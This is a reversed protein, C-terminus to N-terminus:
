VVMYEHKCSVLVYTKIYSCSQFSGSYRLIILGLLIIAPLIILILGHLVKSKFSSILFSVISQKLATWAALAANKEAQRKTKAPEGSFSM